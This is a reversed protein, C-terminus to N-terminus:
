FGAVELMQCRPVHCAGAHEAHFESRPKSGCVASTLAVIRVVARLEFVSKLGCTSTYGRLINPRKTLYRSAIQRAIISVKGCAVAAHDANPNASPRTITIQVPSPSRVTVSSASPLGISTEASVSSQANTLTTSVLRTKVGTESCRDPKSRTSDQLRAAGQLAGCEQVKECERAGGTTQDRALM